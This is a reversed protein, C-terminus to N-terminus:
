KLSPSKNYELNMYKNTTDRNQIVTLKTEDSIGYVVWINETYKKLYGCTDCYVNVESQLIGETWGMISWGSKVEIKWGNHYKPFGVLYWRMIEFHSPPPIMKKQGYGVYFVLSMLITLIIKM